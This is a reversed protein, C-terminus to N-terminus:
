SAGPSRRRDTPPRPCADFSSTPFAGILFGVVSGCRRAGRVAASARRGTRRPCPGGGCPSVPSLAPRLPRGVAFASVAAGFFTSFLGRSRETGAGRNLLVWGAVALTPLGGRRISFTRTCLRRRSSSPCSSCRQQGRPSLVASPPSSSVRKAPRPWPPQVPHARTAIPWAGPLGAGRCRLRRVDPVRQGSSVPVMGRASPAHSSGLSQRM